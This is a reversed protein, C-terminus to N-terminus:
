LYLRGSIMGWFFLVALSLWLALTIWEKRRSSAERWALLLGFPILCYRQEILWSLALFPLVVPWLWRAAPVLWRQWLLGVAGFM